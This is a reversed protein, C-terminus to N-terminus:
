GRVGPVLLTSQGISLSGSAAPPRDAACLRCTGAANSHPRSSTAGLRAPRVPSPSPTTLCQTERGAVLAREVVTPGTEVIRGRDMVAVRGARPGVRTPEDFLKLQPAFALTQAIAVRQLQVGVDNRRRPLDLNQACILAYTGTSRDVANKPVTSAARSAALPGTDNEAGRVPRAQAPYATTSTGLGEKDGHTVRL